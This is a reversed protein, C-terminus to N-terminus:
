CPMWTDVSNLVNHSWTAMFLFRLINLELHVNILTVNNTKLDMPQMDSLTAQISIVSWSGYLTRDGDVKLCVSFRLRPKVNKCFM